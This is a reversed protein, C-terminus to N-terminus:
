SAPVVPVAMKTGTVAVAAAVAPIPTLRNAQAVIATSAATQAAVTAATVAVALFREKQMSVPAAVAVAPTFRGPKKALLEQPKVPVQALLELVQALLTESVMAATQDATVAVAKAGAAVAVAPVM